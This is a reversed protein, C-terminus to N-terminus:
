GRILFSFAQEVLTLSYYVMEQRCRMTKGSCKLQLDTARGKEPVNVGMKMDAMLTLSSCRWPSM